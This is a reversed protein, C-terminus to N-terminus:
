RTRASVSQPTAAGSPTWRPRASGRQGTLALRGLGLPEVLRLTRVHQEALIETPSVAQCGAEV